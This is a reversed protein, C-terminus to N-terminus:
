DTGFFTHNLNLELLLEIKYIKIRAAETLVLIKRASRVIKSSSAHIEFREYVIM